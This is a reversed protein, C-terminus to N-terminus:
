KDRRVELVAGEKPAPSFDKGCFGCRVLNPNKGEPGEPPRVFFGAVKNLKRCHTCTVNM